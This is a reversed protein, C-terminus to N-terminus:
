LLRLRALCRRVLARLLLRGSLENASARRDAETPKAAASQAAGKAERALIGEMGLAVVGEIAAVAVDISIMEPPDPLGAPATDVDFELHAVDGIVHVEATDLFAAREKSVRAAMEAARRPLPPIPTPDLDDVASIARVIGENVHRHLRGSWERAHATENVRRLLEVRDYTLSQNLPVESTPTLLSEPLGLLREFITPLQNWDRDRDDAVVFVREPPLVGMWREVLGQAGQIHWFKTRPAADGDPLVRELFDAYSDATIQNKVHQQWASPAVRDLARITMIVHVREPGLDRVLKAAKEDTLAAFGESSIVIRGPHERMREAFREWVTPPPLRYGPMSGGRLSWSEVAQRPATGPYLIGREALEARRDALVHQLYTTGTKPPGIHVLIADDPLASLRDM